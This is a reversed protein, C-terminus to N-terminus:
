EDQNSSMECSQSVLQAPGPHALAMRCPSSSEHLYCTQSRQSSPCCLCHGFFRSSYRRPVEYRPITFYFFRALSKLLRSRHSPLTTRQRVRLTAPLCFIVSPLLRTTSCPDAHRAKTGWSLPKLGCVSLFYAVFSLPVGPVGTPTATRVARPRVLTITSSLVIYKQFDRGTSQCNNVASQM